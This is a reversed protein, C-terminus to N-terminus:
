AEDLKQRYQIINGLLGKQSLRTVTAESETIASLHFNVTSDNPHSPSRNSNLKRLSIWSDVHCPSHDMKIPSLEDELPKQQLSVRKM